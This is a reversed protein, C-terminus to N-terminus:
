QYLDPDILRQNDMYLPACREPDVGRKGSSEKCDQEALTLMLQVDAGDIRQYLTFDVTNMYLAKHLPKTAYRATTEAFRERDFTRGSCGTLGFACMGLCIAFVFPGSGYANRLLVSIM